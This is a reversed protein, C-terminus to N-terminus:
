LPGNHLTIKQQDLLTKLFETQHIVEFNGGFQSYENKFTNYCHPLDHPNKQGIGSLPRSTKRYSCSYLVRQGDQPLIGCCGEEPGLIGFSVGTRQLIKVV